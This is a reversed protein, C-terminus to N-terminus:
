LGEMIMDVERSEEYEQDPNELLIDHILPLDPAVLLLEAIEKEFASYAVPANINYLRESLDKEPTSLMWVGIKGPEIVKLEDASIGWAILSATNLALKLNPKNLKEILQFSQPLPSLLDNDLLTRLHVTIGKLDAYECIERVSKEIHELMEIRDINNEVPKHLSIILNEAGLINMKKIVDRITEMSREYESGINNVLRLDPFLNIGSTLDVWLNLNQLKLWGSEGLLIKEERQHIYKWDVLVGDFHQFFTPRSLIQTQISENGSLPLIRNAANSIPIVLPIESVNTEKVKVRFIRIDGGAISNKDSKGIDKGEM